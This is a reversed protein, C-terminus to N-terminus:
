LRRDGFIPDIPGLGMDFKFIADLDGTGLHDLGLMNEIKLCRATFHGFIHETGGKNADLALSLGREKVLDM